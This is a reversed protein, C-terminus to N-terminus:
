AYRKVSLHQRSTLAGGHPRTKLAAPDDLEWKCRVLLFTLSLASWYNTTLLGSECSVKVTKDLFLHMLFKQIKLTPQADYHFGTPDIPIHRILFLVCRQHTLRIKNQLTNSNQLM